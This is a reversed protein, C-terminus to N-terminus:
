NAAINSNYMKDYKQLKLTEIIQILKNSYKKDTAYGAKSLGKAWTKYDTSKTLHKYRKRNLFVSHARYSEWVNNYNRFFDKHSDDTFNGCHGKKCSKSFCKIGFHNNNKTALRSDGANSELLGQALTISALVKYRKMEAKAVPAYREIYNYVKRNHRNVIEVDIKHKKAFNPNLIFGLNSYLIENKEVIKKSTDIAREIREISENAEIIARKNAEVRQAVVNLSDNMLDIINNQLRHIANRRENISKLHLQYNSAEIRMLSSDLDVVDVSDTLSYVAQNEIFFLPKPKSIYFYLIPVCLILISIISLIIKKKSFVYLTKVSLHKM